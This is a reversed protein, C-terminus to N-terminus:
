KRNPDGPRPYRELGSLMRRLGDPTQGWIITGQGRWSLEALGVVEIRWPLPHRVPDLMIRADTQDRSKFLSGAAVVKGDAAAISYNLPMSDSTAAIRM